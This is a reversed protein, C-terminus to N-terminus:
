TREDIRMARLVAGADVIAPEHRRRETHQTHSLADPGDGRPASQRLCQAARAFYWAAAAGVLLWLAAVDLVDDVVM